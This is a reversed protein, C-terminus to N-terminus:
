DLRESPRWQWFLSGGRGTITNRGTALSIWHWAKTGHAQGETGAIGILIGDKECIGCQFKSCRAAHAGTAARHRELLRAQLDGSGTPWCRDARGGGRRDLGGCEAMRACACGPPIGGQVTARRVQLHINPPVRRTIFLLSSSLLSLAVFLLVYVYM